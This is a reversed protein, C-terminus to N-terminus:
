TILGHVGTDLRETTFKSQLSRTRQISDHRWCDRVNEIQTKPVFNDRFIFVLFTSLNAKWVWELWKKKKTKQKSNRNKEYVCVLLLLTLFMHPSNRRGAWKADCHEATALDKLPLAKTDGAATRVDRRVQRDSAPFRCLSCGPRASKIVTRAARPEAAKIFVVSTDPLCLPLAPCARLLRFSPWNGPQTIGTKAWLPRFVHGDWCM